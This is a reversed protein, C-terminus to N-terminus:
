SFLSDVAKQVTDADFGVGLAAFPKELETLQGYNLGVGVSSESPVNGLFDRVMISHINKVVSVAEEKKVSFCVEDHVVYKWKLSTTDLLNSNWVEAMVEKVQNAGAGQIRANGAQRLAKSATWKDDSNILSALHRKTGGAITVYGLQEAMDESIQKWKKVEPFEGFIADIYTQAETESIGLTEGIKPAAASYLTAFLVVKSIQRIAAAKKAVEPDSSSRMAMFEEYPVKAVRAGVISHTDRKHDGIYCGLLNPDESYSAVQRVEQGAFDLSVFVYGKEAQITSRVGESDGELQQLNIKSSSWRRTNTSSQILESHIRGTQWHIHLPYSSWYLANRTNCSKMVLLAELVEADKGKVDGFKVAMEIAGDDTRPNGERLGKARMVDTVKNRLRVPAGIVEYMLKAIQNPSGVNFTPKGTYVRKVWANILDLKGGEVLKALLPADEHDLEGILIALKSVTRVMTTLELGLTVQVAQKINAPNLEEFVPCVSGEWGKDILFAEIKNWCQDSLEKDEAELKKLRPINIDLGQVYALASLYMPKQELRKFAEYTHDVQMFLKFFNWLASTTYVDDLGYDVVEQASIQHMKYTRTEQEVGDVEFTKIVTGGSLSGVPGTKTTTEQYTAQQYGLLLSSLNKLGHSPQNEDWFSAAIRTDVMNPIFGRWGNKEWKKNFANYAVPLEFGAANHAVIFKDQPIAEILDALQDLTCNNTDKHKCSIYYGYQNNNGFTIGMSVIYSAIVDVGKKGRSELWDDSEEPTSTEFDITFFESEGIKSEMFQLAKDYTDATVLRSQAAWKKLREDKVLDTVMGPSWVLQQRVTNVWEPHLMALKYSRSVNDWEDVIKQLYKCENESAVKALEDRAGKRVLELLEFCGDDGYRSNVELFAKPGFGKAGPINDSSDGVTAKYLTILPFAFEGYKNLGYEGSIRTSLNAGYQNKGNLVALDNDGTQIICDEESNLALYAVVDDGEVFDQTVEIAGLNRFTESLKAKLLNFQIYQEPEHSRTGKYAPDIMKRRSKSDKGEYVLVLDKPALDNERLPAVLMNVANEYGFAATNVWVAKGTDTTVESGEVDKGALLATWMISSMDVIIKM